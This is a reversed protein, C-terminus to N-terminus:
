LTMRSNLLVFTIKKADYLWFNHSKGWKLTLYCWSSPRDWQCCKGTESPTRLNQNNIKIKMHMGFSFYLAPRPDWFSFICQSFHPWYSRLSIKEECINWHFFIIEIDECGLIDYYVLGAFVEGKHTGPTGNGLVERIPALQRCYLIWSSTLAPGSM